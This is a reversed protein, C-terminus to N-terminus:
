MRAMFKERNPGSGVAVRIENIASQESYQRHLTPHHRRSCELWAQYYDEHHRHIHDLLDFRNFILVKRSHGCYHVLGRVIKDESKLEDKSYPQHQQSEEPRAILLLLIAVEMIHLEKGHKGDLSACAKCHKQDSTLSNRLGSIGQTRPDQYLYTSLKTKFPNIQTLHMNLAHILSHNRQFLLKPECAFVKSNFHFRAEFQIRVTEEPDIVILGHFARHIFIESTGQGHAPDPLKEIQM